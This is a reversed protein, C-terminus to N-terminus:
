PKAIESATLARYKLGDTALSLLKPLSNVAEVVLAIDRASFERGIGNHVDAFRRVSELFSKPEPKHLHEPLVCIRGNEEGCRHWEGPKHDAADIVARLREILDTM